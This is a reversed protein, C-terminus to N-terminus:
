RDFAQLIGGLAFSAAFLFMFVRFLFMNRRGTHFQRLGAIVATLGAAIQCGFIVYVSMLLYETNDARGSDIQWWERPKEAEDKLWKSVFAGLAGMFIILFLGLGAIMGGRQRINAQSYLPKGCKPCAPLAGRNEWDCNICFYLQPEASFQNHYSINQNM